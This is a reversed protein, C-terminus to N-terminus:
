PELAASAAALSVAAAAAVEWFQVTPAHVSLSEGVTAVDSAVNVSAFCCSAAATTLLLLLALLLAVATLPKASRQHGNAPSEGDAKVCICLYAM